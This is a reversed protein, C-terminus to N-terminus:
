PKERLLRDRLKVMAADRPRYDLYRELHELAFRSEGADHYAQALRLRL